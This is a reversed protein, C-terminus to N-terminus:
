GCSRSGRQGGFEVMKNEETIEEVRQSDVEVCGEGGVLPARSRGEGGHPTCWGGPCPGGGLWGAAKSVVHQM